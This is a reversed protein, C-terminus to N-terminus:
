DSGFIKPIFLFVKGALFHSGMISEACCPVPPITGAAQTTYPVRKPPKSPKSVIKAWTMKRGPGGSNSASPTAPIVKPGGTSSMPESTQYGTSAQSSQPSSPASQHSNSEAPGAAASTSINGPENGRRAEQSIREELMQFGSPHSAHSREMKQSPHGISKTRLSSCSPCGAIIHGQM